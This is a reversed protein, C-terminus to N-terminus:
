RACNLLTMRVAENSSRIVFSLDFWASNAAGAADHDVEGARRAGEGGLVRRDEGDPVCDRTEPRVKWRDLGPDRARGREETVLQAGGGTVTLDGTDQSQDEREGESEVAVM